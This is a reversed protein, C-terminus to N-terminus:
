TQTQIMLNNNTCLSYLYDEQSTPKQCKRYKRITASMSQGVTRMPRMRYGWMAYVGAIGTPLHYVSRACLNGIRAGYARIRKSPYWALRSRRVVLM